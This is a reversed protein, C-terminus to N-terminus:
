WFGSRVDLISFYILGSVKLIVDDIMRVYYFNCKVVKNLNWFDLCLCILGNFKIIVVILNVWLIYENCVEFFIGWKKM